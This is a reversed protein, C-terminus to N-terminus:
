SENINLFKSVNTLDGDNKKPLIGLVKCMLSYFDVSRVSQSKFNKKFAPGYAYFVTNMSKVDTHYGHDGIKWKDSTEQFWEKIKKSRLVTWGPTGILLIDPARESRKLHLEDPINEKLYVKFHDQAEKLRDYIKKTRGSKAFIYVSTTGIINSADDLDM